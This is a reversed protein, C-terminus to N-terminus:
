EEGLAKGMDGSTKTATQVFNMQRAYLRCESYSHGPKRCWWCAHQKTLQSREDGTALSTHTRPSFTKSGSPFVNNNRRPNTNRQFNNFDMSLSDVDMTSTKTASPPGDEFVIGWVLSAQHIAQTMN